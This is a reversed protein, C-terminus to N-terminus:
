AVEVNVARPGKERMEIDFSLRAGTAPQNLGSRELEAAHLFYSIGDDGTIFYFGREPMSKTVAGQMKVNSLRENPNCLFPRVSAAPQYFHTPLILGLEAASYSSLRSRIAHRLEFHTRLVTYGNACYVMRLDGSELLTAIADVNEAAALWLALEAPTM